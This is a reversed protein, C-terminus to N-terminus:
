GLVLRAVYSASGGAARVEVVAVGSAPPKWVVIRSAKLAFRKGAHATILTIRADGPLFAFHLRISKGAAVRVTPLDTRGGPPLFDACTTKWCYTSYALWRSRTSTEIWAPPPGPQKLKPPPTTPRGPWSAALAGASLTLAVISLAFVGKM